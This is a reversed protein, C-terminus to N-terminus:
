AYKWEGRYWKLIWVLFEIKNRSTNLGNKELVDRQCELKGEM